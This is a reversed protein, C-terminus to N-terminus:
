PGVLHSLLIGAAVSANLSEARGRRPVTVRETCLGLVERSIGHSESGIVLVGSRLPPMGYVSRGDLTAGLVPTDSLSGLWLALPQEHLRVRFLSGMTAQVVKPNYIDVTSPSCVIDRIGFWDATRIITGMNGPDRIDEVALLPGLSNEIRPNLPFKSAVALVQNPTELSSVAELESSTLPFASGNPLGELLGRNSELWDPLAFVGRVIDPRERILETVLKPGEVVFEGCEDRFKKHALRQIYKTQSRQLM